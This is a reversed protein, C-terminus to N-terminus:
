YYTVLKPSLGMKVRLKEVLNTSKQFPSKDSVIILVISTSTKSQIDM